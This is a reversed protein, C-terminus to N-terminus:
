RAPRAGRWSCTRPSSTAISSGPAHAKQLGICAQAVIRLALDPPLPGIRQILQALDQGSLLEMVMYPSGLTRDVGTDLIQVIHQTDIRGAARAERQFRGVATGSERRKQGSILKM